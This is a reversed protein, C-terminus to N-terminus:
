NPRPREAHDIVVLDISGPRTELKLGAQEQLAELLPAFDLDSVIRFDYNGQLHSENLVPRGLIDALRDALQDMTANQGSIGYQM